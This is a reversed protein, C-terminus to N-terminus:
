DWTSALKSAEAATLHGTMPAHEEHQWRRIAARTEAGFVGDTQADYYGLRALSQQVLRRQAETMADEDPLSVHPRAASQPAATATATATTGTAAVSPVSASAPAPRASPPAAVPAPAGALYLEAGPAQFGAVTVTKSGALQQQVMNLVAAGQVTGHLLPVLAAALPTPANGPAANSVAVYGIAPPLAPQLLADLAPPATDNPLPVTDLALVATSPKGGILTSLLTKALVGQTLVDGPRSVNASVPLLFPRGEFGTGYACVYIVAPSNPAATMARAFGSMAAYLTGSAADNQEDVTYGLGRLAGAVARASLACGPLPPLNTYAAEGIVLAQGTSAARASTAM